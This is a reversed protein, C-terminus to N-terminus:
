SFNISEDSFSDGAEGAAAINFPDLGFPQVCGSLCKRKLMTISENPNSPVMAAM